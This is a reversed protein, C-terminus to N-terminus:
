GRAFKAVADLARDLDPEVLIPLDSATIIEQAEEFGNGILRAIVPLRPTGAERVARVLLRAFEGLHTIGAFVSVLVVRINPGRGIWSLVEILRRPDGRMQGTRIDCFNFPRLGRATLEDILMMSLGAGTSVLGISGSCDIEAYDFGSTLKLFVEPYADARDRLLTEVEPQRPIANGDLIMKADGAVWAGDGLLFLPNIELLTAEYRFFARALRRAADRLPARHAQPMEAAMQELGSVVSPLDPAVVISRVVGEGEHLTEIEMGGRASLLLRIGAREPETMLGLYAEHGRVQREIRCARVVHGRITMGIIADLHPGIQDPATAIRIGGAKGRGGTPVQAKVVWPGPIGALDGPRTALVGPPMPVGTRALLIKADHELLLM